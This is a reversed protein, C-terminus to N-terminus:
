AKHHTVTIKGDAGHQVHHGHFEVDPHDKKLALMADINAKHDDYLHVTKHGSKKIADSIVKAKAQPTPMDINGARRVHVKGKSIDVGHRKWKDAFKKQNDFDSRATLIEVKKGKKHLDRMRRMMRRIPKAKKFKDASKFESFDYSHGAKLKHSNFQQPDLSEVRKGHEDKVHVKTSDTHMLTKDVDFYHIESETLFSGFTIM